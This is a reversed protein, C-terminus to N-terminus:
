EARMAAVPDIGSARQAPLWCALVGITALLLAMGVFTMPDTTGIDYVLTGLFRTLWLAGATGFALSIAILILGQGVIMRLVSARNAGLAIRIGIEQSRQETAYAIVAYTGIAALILALLAFITLSVTTFRPRAVAKSLLEDMSRVNYLPLNPDLQHLAARVGPVVDTPRGATRLVLSMQPFPRFQRHEWYFMARPETDPGSHRVDSLVGVVEARLTDNWPM